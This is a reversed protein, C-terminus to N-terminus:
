EGEGGKMRVTHINDNITLVAEYCELMFVIFKSKILLCNKNQLNNTHM